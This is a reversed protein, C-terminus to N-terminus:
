TEFKLSFKYSLWSSILFRFPYNCKSNKSFSTLYISINSMHIKKSESTYKPKLIHNISTLAKWDAISIKWKEGEESIEVVVYECWLVILAEDRSESLVWFFRMVVSSVTEEKLKQGQPLLCRMPAIVEIGNRGM